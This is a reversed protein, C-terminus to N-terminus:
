EVWQRNVWYHKLVGPQWNYVAAAFALLCVPDSVASEVWGLCRLMWRFIELLM